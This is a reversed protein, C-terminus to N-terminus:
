KCNCNEFQDRDSLCENEDSESGDIEDEEKTMLKKISYLNKLSLSDQFKKM